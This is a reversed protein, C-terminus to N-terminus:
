STMWSSVDPSDDINEEKTVKEVVAVVPESKIITEEKM